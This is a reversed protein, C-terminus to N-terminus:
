RQYSDYFASFDASPIRATETESPVPVALTCRSSPSLLPPSPFSLTHISLSKRHRQSSSSISTPTPPLSSSSSPQPNLPLPTPGSNPDNRSKRPSLPKPLPQPNSTVDNDLDTSYISSSTSTRRSTSGQQPGITPTPPPSTPFSKAALSNDVEKFIAAGWSGCASLVRPPKRPASDKYLILIYYNVYTPPWFKGSVGCSRDLLVSSPEITSFTRDISPRDQTKGGIFSREDRLFLSPYSPDSAANVTPQAQHSLPRSYSPLPKRIIPNSISKTHSINLPAPLILRLPAQVDQPRGKEMSAEYSWYAAKKELSASTPSSSTSSATGIDSNPSSPQLKLPDLDSARFRKGRPQPAARTIQFRTMEDETVPNQNLPSSRDTTMPLSIM